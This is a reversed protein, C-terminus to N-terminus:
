PECDMPRCVDMLGDDCFARTGCADAVAPDCAKTCYSVQGVIACLNAPQGGCDQARQCYQGVGIENGVDGPRGCIGPLPEGDDGCAAAWLVLAAISLRNMPRPHYSV